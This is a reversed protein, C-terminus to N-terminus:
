FFDLGAIAKVNALCIHNFISQEPMFGAQDEHIMKDMPGMLQIGLVKTLIKYDTNLVTILCYNSIDTHDKKKFLPCMWGETFNLREDVGHDQIDGYLTTLAKIVDFSQKNKCQM